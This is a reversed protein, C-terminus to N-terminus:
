GFNNHVHRFIKQESYHQGDKILTKPQKHLHRGLLMAQSGLLAQFHPKAEPSQYFLAMNSRENYSYNSYIYKLLVKTISFFHIEEKM